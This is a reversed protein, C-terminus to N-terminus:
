RGLLSSWWTKVSSSAGASTDSVRDLVSPTQINGDVRNARLVAAVDDERRSLPLFGYRYLTYAVSYCKVYPLTLEEDEEIDDTARVVVRFTSSTTSSAIGDGSSGEEAAEVSYSTNAVGGPPHSLMDLLPVVTPVATPDVENVRLRDEDVARLVHTYFAHKGRMVAAGFLDLEEGEVNEDRLREFPARHVRLRPLMRQRSLVTRLAWEVDELSPPPKQVVDAAAVPPSPLSAGSCVADREQLQDGSQSAALPDPSASTRLESVPLTPVSFQPVSAATARTATTTAAGDPGRGTAAEYAAWWAKHLERVYHRFRRTHDTYELHTMPDLVGLHLAAIADDDFLEAPDLLRLYPYLPSAEGDARECALRLAACVQDVFIPHPIPDFSSRRVSLIRLVADYSLLGPRQQAANSCRELVESNVTLWAGSGLESDPAAVSVPISLVVEGKKFAKKAYVGRATARRLDLLVHTELQGRLVADGPVVTDCLWQVFAATDAADVVGRVDRSVWSEESLRVKGLAPSTLSSAWMPLKSKPTNNPVENSYHDRGARQSPDSVFSFKGVRKEALAGHRLPPLAAGPHVMPLPAASPRGEEGSHTADAFTTRPARRRQGPRQWNAHYSPNLHPSRGARVRAPGDDSDDAGAVGSAPAKHSLHGERPAASTGAHSETSSNSVPMTTETGPSSSSHGNHPRHRIPIHVVRAAALAARESVRRM